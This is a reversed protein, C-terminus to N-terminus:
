FPIDRDLEEDDLAEDDIAITSHGKAIAAKVDDYSENATMTASKNYTIRCGVGDKTGGVSNISNINLLMPAASGKWTVEIFNGTIFKLTV